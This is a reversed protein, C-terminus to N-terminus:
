YTELYGNHSQFLQNTHTEKWVAEGDSTAWFGNFGYGISSPKAHKLVARWIDDRGSMGAGRGLAESVRGTIGFWVELSGVFAMMLLVVM